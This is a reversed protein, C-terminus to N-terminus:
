VFMSVEELALKPQASLFFDARATKKRINQTRVKALVFALMLQLEQITTKRIYHTAGLLFLHEIIEEYLSTSYIIVPLEQLGDHHRIKALCESGNRRPMNLDLFLLDPKESLPNFLHDLLEEGNEFISLKISDNLNSLAETFFFRDDPDDEALIIHIPTHQQMM